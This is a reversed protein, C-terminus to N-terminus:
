KPGALIKTLHQQHIQRGWRMGAVSHASSDEPPTPATIEERWAQQGDRHRGWALGSLSFLFCSCLKWPCNKSLSQPLSGPGLASGGEVGSLCVAATPDGERFPALKTSVAEGASGEKASLQSCQHGCEHCCLTWRGRQSAQAGRTAAPLTPQHASLSAPAPESAPGGTSPGCGPSGGRSAPHECQCDLLSCVPIWYILKYPGLPVPVVNKKDSASFHQAIREGSLEEPCTTPLLPLSGLRARPGTQGNRHCPPRGTSGHCGSPCHCYFSPGYPRRPVSFSSM